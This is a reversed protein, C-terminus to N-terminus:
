EAIKYGTPTLVMKPKEKQHEIGKVVEGLQEGAMVRRMQIEYERNFIKNYEDAGLTQREWKTHRAVTIVIPHTEPTITRRIIMQLATEPSPMGYDEPSPTCWKIFEGVSPLFRSPDKRAKKLGHSTQDRNHIGNEIFAKTWVKKAMLEEDVTKIALNYATYTAKLEKFLDDIFEKASDPVSANVPQQYNATHSAMPKHINSVLDRINKMAM